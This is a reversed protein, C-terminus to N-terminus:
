FDIIMNFLNVMRVRVAAHSAKAIAPLVMPADVPAFEVATHWGAFCM